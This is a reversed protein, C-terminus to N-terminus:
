SLKEIINFITSIISFSRKGIDDVKSINNKLQNLKEATQSVSLRATPENYTEVSKDFSKILEKIEDQGIPIVQYLEDLKNKIDVLKSIDVLGAPRSNYKQCKCPKEQCVPCGCLYYDIFADDFSHNHKEIHWM